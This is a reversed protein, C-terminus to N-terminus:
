SKQGGLDGLIKCQRLSIKWIRLSFWRPIRWCKTMLCSRFFHRMSHSNKYRPHLRETGRTRHIPCRFKFFAWKGGPTRASPMQFHDFFLLELSLSLSIACAALSLRRICFSIFSRSVSGGGPTERGSRELSSDVEVSAMERDVMSARLGDEKKERM